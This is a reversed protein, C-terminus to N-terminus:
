KSTTQIRTCPCIKQKITQEDDSLYICNGLSKSMKGKWRNWCAKSTIKKNQCLPKQCFWPTRWVFQQINERNRAGTRDSATQDEGVPVINANFATIDAAQSIPYTLFGVPVSEEFGRLKIEEKVTPNRKLRSLTVLNM